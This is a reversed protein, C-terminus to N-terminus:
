GTKTAVKTPQITVSNFFTAVTARATSASPVLYGARTRRYTRVKTLSTDESSKHSVERQVGRRPDCTFKEFPRSRGSTRLHGSFVLWDPVPSFCGGHAFLRDHREQGLRAEPLGGGPAPNRVLREVAPQGVIGRELRRELGGTVRGELRRDAPNRGERPAGNLREGIQEPGGFRGRDPEPRSPRHGLESM